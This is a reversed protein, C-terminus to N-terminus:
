VSEYGAEKLMSQLNQKARMLHVRATAAACSMSNGAEEASFGEVEILQFATAQKWTLRSICAQITEISPGESVLDRSQDGGHYPELDTEIMRRKIQRYVTRCTNLHIKYLWPKFPYAAKYRKLNAFLKIFTTQTADQADTENGLMRTAFGLLEPSYQRVIIRFANEDGELVRKIVEQM